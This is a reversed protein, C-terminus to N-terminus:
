GTNVQNSCERLVKDQFVEERLTRTLSEEVEEVENAAPLENEVEAKLAEPLAAELDTKLADIRSEISKKVFENKANALEKESKEIEDKLYEIYENHDKLKSDLEKNVDETLDIVATKLKDISGPARDTQPMVERPAAGEAPQSTKQMELVNDGIKDVVTEKDEGRGKAKLANVVEDCIKGIIYNKVEEKSAKLMNDDDVKNVLPANPNDSVIALQTAKLMDKWSVGSIEPFNLVKLESDGGNLAYIRSWRHHGDIIYKGAYIITPDDFAELPTNIIKESWGPQAVLDLSKSLSINQQTPVLQSCKCKGYSANAQKITKITDDGNKYHQNLYNIFAQSKVDKALIKVFETYSNADKLDQLMKEADQENTNEKEESTEEQPEEDETLKAEYLKLSEEVPIEELDSEESEESNEAEEDPIVELESEETNEEETEEVPEVNLSDEENEVQEEEAKVAEVKGILTYGSDNGCHQCVESVNCLTEDEESKEIDAADKYFLTMCQPCQIINKGVYSPLIDEPSEANIDVIKEIRALKAQAIEEKRDSQAQELDNSDNVDYYEEMLKNTVNSRIFRETLRNQKKDVEPIDLESLAKFATEFDFTTVMERKKM